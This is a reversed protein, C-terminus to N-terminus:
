NIFMNTLYESLSRTTTAGNSQWSISVTIKKTNTDLTGGSSTIAQNSDRYVDALVVKREFTNDIYRNTSTGQWTSTGFAIYWQTGSTHSAINTTWSTDRLIRVAEIGEEALFASQVQATNGLASHLTFLFAGIVGALIIALIGSAVLAEILVFGGNAQLRYSPAQLPLVRRMKRAVPQQSCAAPKEMHMM